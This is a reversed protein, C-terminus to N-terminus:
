VFDIRNPRNKPSGLTGGLEPCELDGRGFFGSCFFMEWTMPRRICFRNSKPSKQAIRPDGGTGPVGLEGIKPEIRLNGSELRWFHSVREFDLELNRFQRMNQSVESSSAFSDCIKAPGRELIRCQRM